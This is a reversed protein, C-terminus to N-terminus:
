VLMVFAVFFIGLWHLPAFPLQPLDFIQPHDKLNISPLM